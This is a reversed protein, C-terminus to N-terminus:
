LLRLRLTTISCSLMLFTLRFYLLVSGPTADGNVPRSSHRTKTQHLPAPTEQRAIVRLALRIAAIDSPCGNLEKIRQIAARDQEELRITTATRRKKQTM